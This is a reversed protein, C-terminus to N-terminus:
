GRNRKAFRQWYTIARGAAYSLLGAFLLMRGLFNPNISFDRHTFFGRHGTRDLLLCAAALALAAIGTAVLYWSLSSLGEKKGLSDYASPDFRPTEGSPSETEPM